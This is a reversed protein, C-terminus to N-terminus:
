SFCLHHAFVAFIADYYLPTYIRHTCDSKGNQLPFLHGSDIEIEKLSIYPMVDDIAKKTIEQKSMDPSVRLACPGQERKEYLGSSGPFHQIVTQKWVINRLYPLTFLSTVFATIKNHKLHLGKNMFVRDANTDAPPEPHYVLTYTTGKLTLTANLSNSKTCARHEYHSKRPIYCSTVSGGLRLIGCFYAYYFQIMTSDGVFATTPPTCQLLRAMQFPQTRIGNHVHVKRLAETNNHEKGFWGYTHGNPCCPGTAYSLYAGRSKYLPSNQTTGSIWKDPGCSQHTIGMVEDPTFFTSLESDDLREWAGLALFPLVWM